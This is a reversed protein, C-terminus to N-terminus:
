LQVCPMDTEVTMVIGTKDGTVVAARRGGLCFNHDYGGCRRLQEDDADVDAGIAKGARFDFPTGAVDLLRGTPLGNEDNECFRESFLQLRHRLM